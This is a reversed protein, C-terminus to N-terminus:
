GPAGTRMECVGAADTVIGSEVLTECLTAIKEARAPLAAPLQPEHAASNMFWTPVYFDPQLFSTTFIRGEM